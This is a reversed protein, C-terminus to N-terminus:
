EDRKVDNWIQDLRDLGATSLDIDQARARKELREFRGTFKANARALANTPHVGTLRALNVAAFLLDGVEEQVAASLEDDGVADRADRAELAEVVEGLEEEVKALAGQHDAWDFGVGAVREQIRYARTLPDLGRALGTLVGEGDSREAAKSEEWSRHEADGFVHPHRAIMKTELRGYISDADMSGDEEAVVVQFALNLLLDGLEGELEGADGERIAEVVEHTEELLHPILSEATQKADWPCESRLYRVLALARDLTGP